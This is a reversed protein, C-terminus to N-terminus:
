GDVYRDREVVFQGTATNADVFEPLLPIRVTVTVCVSFEEGPVLSPSWGGAAACGAGAPAYAVRLDALDVSQDAVALQAARLAREHGTGPDPATGMARGAERAAAQSAFVGRQVASFGAVVYVLPVFVVLAIFVFEVLASGREGAVMGLRRRLWRM